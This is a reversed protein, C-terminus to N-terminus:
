LLPVEVRITTGAGPASEILLRGGSDAVLDRLGTLGFHGSGAIARLDSADFGSGDDAIEAWLEEANSGARVTVRRAGAHALVNRLAEQVVRYVLTTPAIPLSAALTDTELSTSLGSASARALLDSIAPALGEEALDPPYIEVMLTRLAEVSARVTDGAAALEEATPPRDQRAIAAFSYSVGALDQVVGDHLDQAIRRREMESVGILRNLLAERELQRSRLQRALSWALPIQILQLVLLSGLTIPAFSRWVRRGSEEVADFRYYTEFLVKTGNPTTVPLYVELLKNRPREYRNEPRTLDSVEAQALDNNLTTIEDDGLDYRHGILRPEDSYLITGDAAWIKVRVLDKSLVQTRVVKDIAALATPDRTLVGDTLAPEVVAQGIALGRSRADTTAERQGIRRSAIFVAMGVIALAALGLLVFQGVPAAVM